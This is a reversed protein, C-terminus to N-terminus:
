SLLVSVRGSGNEAVAINGIHIESSYNWCIAYGAIDKELEVVFASAIQEDEV